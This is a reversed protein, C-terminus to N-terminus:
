SVPTFKADPLLFRMLKYELDSGVKVYTRDAVNFITIGKDENLMEYKDTVIRVHRDVNRIKNFRAFEETRRQLYLMREEISTIKFQPGVKETIDSAPIGAYTRDPLMDKTIVSGLMALSRAGIKVPSVLCHGTLWVDDEIELRKVKHFRCGYMVDGYIMHTWLQSHAGICVNNGILTGGRGDIISGIGLWFNHGIKVEGGPFFCNDYITGYDGIEFSDALVKVNSGLAVGDGIRVRKCRFVVGKGFTVNEGIKVDKTAFYPRDLFKGKIRRLIARPNM